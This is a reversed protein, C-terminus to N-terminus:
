PCGAAYANQFCLYDFLTLASDGDCDARPDGAGFRGQFCLFDLFDLAGSADCDAVCACAGIWLAFGASPTEGASLFGGVVALAPLRSGERNVTIASLSSEAFCGTYWPNCWPQVGGEFESWAGGDYRALRPAAVGSITDFYGSVLLIARDPGDADPDFSILDDLNAATGVVEWENGNFRHVRWSDSAFLAPPAPGAGDPDHSVVRHASELGAGLPRWTAGDFAAVSRAEVGDIASFTGCAVLEQPLPGPGDPDHIAFDIVGRRPTVAAIDRWEVGDWAAVGIDGAGTINWGGAYLREGAGLDARILAGVGSLGDGLQRWEGEEYVGVGRIPQGAIQTFSGAVYLRREDESLMASVSRDAGTWIRWRQGDHRLMARDVFSVLEYGAVDALSVIDNELLMLAGGEDPAPGNATIVLPVVTGPFISDRDSERALWLQTGREARDWVALDRVRDPERYDVFTYHWVQPDPPDPSWRHIAAWFYDYIFNINASFYVAEREPGPGDPDLTVLSRVPSFQTYSHRQRWMGDQLAYLYGREDGVTSAVITPPQPGAGDLDFATAGTFVAPAVPLAEWASGNWVRATAGRMALLVPPQPGAGDRDWPELTKAAVAAPGSDIPQWVGSAFQRIVSRPGAEESWVFLEDVGDGDVDVTALAGPSGPPLGPGLSRWASGDWAAIYPADIPGAPAGLGARTFEGAAIVLDRQPGPGDPDWAALARVVGDVGGDLDLWQEGDYSAVYSLPEGLMTETFEGGVFIIERGAPAAAVIAHSPQAPPDWGFGTQWGPQCLQAAAPPAAAALASLLSLPRM